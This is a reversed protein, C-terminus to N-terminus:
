EAVADLRGIVRRIQRMLGTVECPEATLIMAALSTLERAPPVPERERYRALELSTEIAANCDHLLSPLADPSATADLEAILRQLRNAIGNRDVHETDRLALPM